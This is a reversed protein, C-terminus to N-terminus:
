TDPVHPKLMSNMILPKINQIRVIGAEGGSALWCCTHYNPNVAISYLSGLPFCDINTEIEDVTKPAPSKTEVSETYELYTKEVAERYSSPWVRSAQVESDKKTEEYSSVKGKLNRSKEEKNNSTKNKEKFEDKSSGEVDENKKCADSDPMNEMSKDCVTESNKINDIEPENQKSNDPEIVQEQQRENARKENEKSEEDKFKLTTKLVSLRYKYTKTDPNQVAFNPCPFTYIHGRNDAFFAMNLWNSWGLSWIAANHVTLFFVNNRMLDERLNCKLHGAEVFRGRNSTMTMADDSASLAGPYLLPWEVENFPSYKDKYIPYETNDLCWFKLLRDDSATVFYNDSMKSWDCGRVVRSHAHFSRFPFLEQKTRLMISSTCLDWIRVTGDSFGGMMYQHDNASQWALSSCTLPHSFSNRSPKLTLVPQAHYVLPPRGEIEQVSMSSPQPVSYIRITSDSCSIALLGLRLIVSQEQLQSPDNPSQWCGSPCWKMGTVFGYDHAIGFEMKPVAIEKAYKNSSIPIKWIQILGPGSSTESIPHLKDRDLSGTVALYQDSTSDCPVPCWSVRWLPCGTYFSFQGCIFRGEFCELRTTNEMRGTFKFEASKSHDPLYKNAESESLLVWDSVCPLLKTHVTRLYNEEVYKLVKKIAVYFKAADPHARSRGFSKKHEDVVDDSDYDDEDSMEDDLKADSDKDDDSNGDPDDAKSLDHLMASAKEAAKRKQRKHNGDDSDDLDTKMLHKQTMSLEIEEKKKRCYDLHIKRWRLMLEGGCLECIYTENERGCWELHNKYYHHHNHRKGCTPCNLFKKIQIVQRLSTMDAKGEPCDPTWLAQHEVAMHHKIRTKNDMQKQCHVCEFIKQPGGIKEKKELINKKRNEKLQSKKKSHTEEEWEDEEEEKGDCEEDLCAEVNNDNIRRRKRVKKGVSDKEELSTNPSVSEFKRKQCNKMTDQFHTATKPPRGRKRKVPVAEPTDEIHQSNDGKTNSKGEDSLLMGVNDTNNIHVVDSEKHNGSGPTEGTSGENEAMRDDPMKQKRPRGRKRTVSTESTSIELLSKFQMSQEGNVSKKSIDTEYEETVYKPPKRERKTKQNPDPTETDSNKKTFKSADELGSKNILSDHLLDSKEEKVKQVSKESNECLPGSTELMEDFSTKKPPRGRKRIGKIIKTDQKQSKEIEESNLLSLCGSMESLDSFASNESLGNKKKNDLNKDGDYSISVKEGDLNLENNSSEHKISSVSIAEIDQDEIQLSTELVLSSGVEDTRRENSENECKNKRPRGRKKKEISAEKKGDCTANNGTDVEGGENSNEFLNQIGGKQQQSKAPVPTSTLFNKILSHKSM